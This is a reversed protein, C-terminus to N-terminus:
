LHIKGKFSVNLEQFEDPQEVAQVNNLDLLIHNKSIEEKLSPTNLAAVVHVVFYLWQVFQLIVLNRMELLHFTITKM